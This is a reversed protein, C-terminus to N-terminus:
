FHAFRSNLTGILFLHLGLAGVSFWAALPVAFFSRVRSLVMLLVPVALWVLNQYSAEPSVVGVYAPMLVAYSLGALGLGMHWASKQWQSHRLRICLLWEAMMVLLLIRVWGIASLVPFAWDIGSLLAAVAAGHALYILAPPVIAGNRMRNHIVWGLTLASLLLNLSRVGPNLLSVLTMVIGLVFAFCEAQRSLSLPVSRSPPEVPRFHRALALSFWLYPFFALGLLVFPMAANGLLNTATSVITQQITAPFLRWLLIYTQLGVLLLATLTSGRRNQLRDFLLWLALSSVAFAQFPTSSGVSVFWGLGLLGAGTFTWLSRDRQAGTIADPPTDPPVNPPLPHPLLAHPRTVWCFVWGCLGLALGLQAIPIQAILTTRGILLLTAAALLTASPAISTQIAMLAATSVTGIYTAVLPIPSIAWGWHLWCLIIYNLTSVKLHQRPILAPNARFLLLLLVTLSLAAIPATVIGTPTQWLGLGDMMWFNIPIILLTTIQLMRATLHLSERQGTWFGAAFFALTYAFLIGYQGVASFNQWQSAALVGSSVVVLFVGLFLLWIVSIEAMFAQFWRELRSPAASQRSPAARQSRDSQRSAPMADAFDGRNPVAVRELPQRSTPETALDSHVAIPEPLACTLHEAGLQKVQEDSLLGLQLWAELGALLEAQEVQQSSLRIIIPRDPSATM